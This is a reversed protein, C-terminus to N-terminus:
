DLENYSDIQPGKCLCEVGGADVFPEWRTESREERSSRGAILSIERGKRGLRTSGMRRLFTTSSVFWFVCEPIEQGNSEDGELHIYYLQRSHFKPTCITFCVRPLEM